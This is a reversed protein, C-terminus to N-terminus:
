GLWMDNKTSWLGDYYTLVINQINSNSKSTNNFISDCHLFVVQPSDIKILFLTLCLGHITCRTTSVSQNNTERKGANFGNHIDVTQLSSQKSRTLRMLVTLFIHM